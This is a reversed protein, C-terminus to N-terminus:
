GQYENRNSQSYGLAMTRVSPNHWNFSELSVTPFRVRSRGAQVEHQGNNWCHLRIQLQTKYIATLYRFLYITEEVGHNWTPPLSTHSWQKKVKTCSPPSYDAEREPLKVGKSSGRYGNHGNFLLNSPAHPWDTRQESSFFRNTDAPM